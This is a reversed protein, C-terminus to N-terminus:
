DTCTTCLIWSTHTGKLFKEARVNVRTSGQMIGPSSPRLIGLSHVYIFSECEATAVEEVSIPTTSTFSYSSIDVTGGGADVIMVSGGTQSLLTLSYFM